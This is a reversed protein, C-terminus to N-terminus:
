IWVKMPHSTNVTDSLEHSNYRVNNAVLLLKTTRESNGQHQLTNSKSHTM